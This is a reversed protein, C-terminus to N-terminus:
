NREQKLTEVEAKLEKVAEILLGVLNGYAVSKVGEEDTMVVEPLVAEVEQAIVGAHRAGEMDKRDYTVGRIESVKDLANPIVEINEKLTIDSYATVNGTATFDGNDNFTFRTTSGDRIYFNGIGGNLDLYFHSGNCFFEADDGSGFRLIDNDALDLASRINVTGNFTITGSATDNTDSRLFSASDIGDLTAANGGDASTIYGAGNTLQNNNTPITPKNSLDNYSGSFSSTGAGILSRVEAGTVGSALSPSGGNRFIGPEAFTTYGAGNTLQNNNTPITPTNTIDAYDVFKNLWVEDNNDWTLVEHHQLTTNWGPEIDYIDSAEIQGALTQPTIPKFKSDISNYSLLMGNSVGTTDVDTLDGAALTVVGTKGAVSDVTNVEAGAAIGDLKTKDAGTMLGSDGAAVAEPLTANTGTSSALERTSATYSLDTSGSVTVAGTQGNVSTVTNVQAGAEIGDLKTHDADTFANTDAEGEYAAKIEAGTQDATASAEIGDLKTKDAASMYGSASTTADDSTIATLDVTGSTSVLNDVKITGYAM